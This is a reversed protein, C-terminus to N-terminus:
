WKTPGGAADIVATCRQPMEMILQELYEETIGKDWCELIRSREVNLSCREDGWVRDQYDKM